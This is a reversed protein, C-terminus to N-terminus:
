LDIHFKKIQYRFSDYSMNLLKSALVKNNKTRELAQLILDKELADISIGEEPLLFIKEYQGVPTVSQVFIEKPLHEPM